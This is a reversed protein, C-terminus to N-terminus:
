TLLSSSLITVFSWLARQVGGHTAVALWMQRQFVCCWHCGCLILKREAGSGGMTNNSKRHRVARSLDSKRHGYSRSCQDLNTVKFNPTPCENGFEVDGPPPRVDGSKRWVYNHLRMRMTVLARGGHQRRRLRLRGRPNM